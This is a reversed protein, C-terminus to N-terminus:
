DVSFRREIIEASGKMWGRKGKEERRRRVKRQHDGIEEFGKLIEEKEKGSEDIMSQLCCALQIDVSTISNGVLWGTGNQLDVVRESLGQKSDTVKKLQKEM